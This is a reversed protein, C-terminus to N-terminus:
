VNTHFFPRERGISSIGFKLPKQLKKVPGLYGKTKFFQIFRTNEIAGEAVRCRLGEDDRCRVRMSMALCM